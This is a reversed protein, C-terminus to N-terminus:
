CPVMASQPVGTLVAVGNKLSTSVVAGYLDDLEQRNLIPSKMESIARRDGGRRDHVYGGNWQQTEIARLKIGEAEILSKVVVGSEGGVPGCITATGGLTAIM